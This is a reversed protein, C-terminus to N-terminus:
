KQKCKTRRKSITLITNVILIIIKTLFLTMLIILLTFFAWPIISSLFPFYGKATSGIVETANM